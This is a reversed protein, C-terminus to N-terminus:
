GNNEVEKVQKKETQKRLLEPDAHKGIIFMWAYEYSRDNDDKAIVRVEHTGLTMKTSYEYTLMKTDPNYVSDKLVVRGMMFKITATNLGADEALEAKIAPIREEIIASDPPYVSKIKIQRKEFIKKFKEIDSNNYLMTRKLAYKDTEATNYSPVVSFGAKYGAKKVFAIVEESYAGYPYAITDMVLGTKDELYEKSGVIETELFKLYERDDMLYKKGKKTKQKLTLIPHTASHSGFEFGDAAMEKIQAVNLANKGGPLFNNYLYTTATYGYKKLLPYAKEYVSRYGDDVTIVVTNAPASKGSEVIKVYESMSIVNYKNEKLYKLHEEFMDPSIYYIDGFVKKKPDTIKRQEFRHYCLINVPSEEDKMQPAASGSAQMFVVATLFVALIAPLKKIKM